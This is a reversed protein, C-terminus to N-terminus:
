PAELFDRLREALREPRKLECQWVVLNRWGLRRLERRAVADRKKNGVLKEKWYEIRSKPLRAYRCGTHSHWFCGHVFIAKRRRWFVLDPTGPLRKEHLRYRYGMGYVLRRVALEPGTNKSRIRGMLWSRRESTLRDM